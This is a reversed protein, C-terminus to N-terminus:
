IRTITKKPSPSSYDSAPLRFVQFLTLIAKNRKYPEYKPILLIDDKEWLESELYPSIRKTRKEKIKLFFPTNWEDMPIVVDSQITGINHLWRLFHKFRHLYDNWTTISNKEPDEEQGRIKTNLFCLIQEAKNIDPSVLRM